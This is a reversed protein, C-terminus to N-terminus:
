EVDDVVKSCSRTSSSYWPRTNLTWLMTDLESIGNDTATYPGSASTTGTSASIVAVPAPMTTSLKTM